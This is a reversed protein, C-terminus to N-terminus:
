KYIVKIITILLLIKKGSVVKESKPYFAVSLVGDSHGNKLTRLCEGTYANWIRITNDLSGILNILNFNYNILFM